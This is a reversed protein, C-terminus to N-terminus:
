TKCGTSEEDSFRNKTYKSHRFKTFKRCKYSKKKKEKEKHMKSSLRDDLRSDFHCQDNVWQHDTCLDIYKDTWFVM